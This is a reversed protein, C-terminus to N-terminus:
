RVFLKTLFFYTLFTHRGSSVYIKDFYLLSMYVIFFQKNRISSKGKKKSFLTFREIRMDFRKNICYILLYVISLCVEKRM